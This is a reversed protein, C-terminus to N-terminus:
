PTGSSTSAPWGRRRPTAASRSPAAVSPPGTSCCGASAAVVAFIIVLVPIGLVDANFFDQVRCASSRPAATPSSRPWAAPAPWCRWRPSSRCSGATRRDAPRQGARLRGRGGAGSVMVIWHTDQAMTQTAVTTCWVSALAVIAGVSLDIGGGTIVFTMGVSVVGIVAALRLITLVNDINAFRDGATVVGVVCILM